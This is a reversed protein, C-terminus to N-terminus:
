KRYVTNMAVSFKEVSLMKANRIEFASGFSITMAKNIWIWESM